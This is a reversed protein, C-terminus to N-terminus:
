IKGGINLCYYFDNGELNYEIIIENDSISLKKTNTKLYIIRSIDFVNYTSITDNLTDFVLNIKYKDSTRYMEIKNDFILITVNINGEKYIIKNKTKVGSIDIDINNDNSVLKARLNIKEMCMGFM